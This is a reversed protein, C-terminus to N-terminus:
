VIYLVARMWNKMYKTIKLLFSLKEVCVGLVTVELFFMVVASLRCPLLIYKFNILAYSSLVFILPTTYSFM